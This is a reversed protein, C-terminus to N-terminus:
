LRRLESEPSKKDRELLPQRGGPKTTTSRKEKSYELVIKEYNKISLFLFFMSKMCVSIHVAFEGSKNAGFELACLISFVDFHGYLRQTTSKSGILSFVIVVRSIERFSFVFIM